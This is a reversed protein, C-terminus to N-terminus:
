KRLPCATLSPLPKLVRRGSQTYSSITMFEDFEEGTNNNLFKYTPM